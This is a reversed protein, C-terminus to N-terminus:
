FLSGALDQKDVGGVERCKEAARVAQRVKPSIEREHFSALFREQMFFFGGAVTRRRHQDSVTFLCAVRISAKSSGGGTMCSVLLIENSTQPRSDSRHRSPGESRDIPYFATTLTAGAASRSQGSTALPM